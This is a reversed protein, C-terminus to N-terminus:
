LRFRKQYHDRVMARGFNLSLLILLLVIIGSAALQHFEEQPRGAWNYIQIPM